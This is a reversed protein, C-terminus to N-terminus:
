SWKEVIYVSPLPDLQLSGLHFKEVRPDIPPIPEPGDWGGRRLFTPRARLSGVEDGQLM